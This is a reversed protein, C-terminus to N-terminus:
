LVISYKDYTEDTLPCTQPLASGLFARKDLSGQEGYFGGIGLFQLPGWQVIIEKWQNRYETKTSVSL